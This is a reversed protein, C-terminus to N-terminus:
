LRADKCPHVVAYKLDTNKIRKKWQSMVEPHNVLPIWLHKAATAIAKDESPFGQASSAWRSIEYSNLIGSRLIQEVTERNMGILGGQIFRVGAHDKGLTGFLCRGSPLAGFRRYFGTDSDIKILYEETGALFNDFRRRWFPGSGHPVCLHEGYSVEVGHREKFELYRPDPDGDSVVLVRSRPFCRRLNTLCWNALSYRDFYVELHFFIDADNYPLDSARNGTV